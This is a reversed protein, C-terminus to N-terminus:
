LLSKDDVSEYDRWIQCASCNLTWALSKVWVASDIRVLKCDYYHDSFNRSSCGQIRDCNRVPWNQYWNQRHLLSTENILYTFVNYNLWLLSVWLEENPEITHYKWTIFQIDRNIASWIKEWVKMIMKLNVLIKFVTFINWQLFGVKIKKKLWRAINFNM